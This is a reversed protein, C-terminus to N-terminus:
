KIEDLHKYLFSRTGHPFVAAYDNMAAPVLVAQHFHDIGM